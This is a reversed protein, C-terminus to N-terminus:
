HYQLGDGQLRRKVREWKVPEEMRREAVVALDHLDELLQEYQKVPIIVATKKGNSDVVFQRSHQSKFM